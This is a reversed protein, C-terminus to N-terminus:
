HWPWSMLLLMRSSGDWAASCCPLVKSRISSIAMNVLWCATSCAWAALCTRSMWCRWPAACWCAARKGSVQDYTSSSIVAWLKALLMRGPMDLSLRELRGAAKNLGAQLEGLLNRQSFLIYVGPLARDLATFNAQEVAWDWATRLNELCEDLLAVARSRYPSLLLPLNEELMGLYYEAHRDGAAGWAQPDLRLEEAGYQRLLEHVEYRGGPHTYLFSKSALSALAPLTAGAIDVAAQRTFWGRFVSLRMFLQREAPSLLKWSSKM